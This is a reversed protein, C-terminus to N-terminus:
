VCMCACVCVAACCVVNASFVPKLAFQDKDVIIQEM